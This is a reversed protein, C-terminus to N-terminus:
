RRGDDLRGFVIRDDVVTGGEAVVAGDEEEVLRATRGSRTLQLGAEQSIDVASGPVLGFADRVHKPVVIRGLEDVPVEM